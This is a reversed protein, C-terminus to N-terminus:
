AARASADSFHSFLAREVDIARWHQPETAGNRWHWAAGSAIGANMRDAVTCLFDCWAAYRRQYRPQSVDGIGNLFPAGRAWASAALGKAIKNDLVGARAPYMFAVVKSAFPTRGLQSLPALQGLTAGLDDGAGARLYGAVLDPTSAPKSRYGDRHRMARITAYSPGFTYFGWFVMSFTGLFNEIPDESHLLGTHYRDLDLDTIHGPEPLILEVFRTDSLHISDSDSSFRAHARPYAYRNRLTVLNQAIQDTVTYGGAIFHDPFMIAPQSVDRFDSGRRRIKAVAGM